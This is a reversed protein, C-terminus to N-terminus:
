DGTPFSFIPFREEYLYVGTFSSNWFQVYVDVYKPVIGKTKENDSAPWEDKSKEDGLNDTNTKDEPEYPEYCYKIGIYKIRRAVIETKAKVTPDQKSTGKQKPWPTEARSLKYVTVGKPLAKGKKPNDSKLKYTVQVIRDKESETQYVQFPNTNIMTIEQLNYVGVSMSGTGRPRTNPVDSYINVIYNGTTRTGTFFEIQKTTRDKEKEKKKEDESLKSRDEKTYIPPIFATSFDREM